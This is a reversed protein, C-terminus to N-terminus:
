FFISYCWFNKWASICFWRIQNKKKKDNIQEKLLNHISKHCSKFGDSAKNMLKHGECTHYSGRVRRMRAKVWFERNLIGRLTKDKKEGSSHTQFWSCWKWGTEEWSSETQVPLCTGTWSRTQLGAPAWTRHSPRPPSTGAPPGAEASSTRVLRLLKSAHFCWVPKGDLTTRVDM